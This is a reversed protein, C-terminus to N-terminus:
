TEVVLTGIAVLSPLITVLRTPKGMINSYKKILHNLSIVQSVLVMIDGSGCLRHGGFKAPTQYVMPSGMWLSVHVKFRM